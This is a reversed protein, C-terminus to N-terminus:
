NKTYGVQSKLCKIWPNFGWINQLEPLFELSNYCAFCADVSPMDSSTELLDLPCPRIEFFSLAVRDLVSVIRTCSTLLVLKIWHSVIFKSRSVLQGM